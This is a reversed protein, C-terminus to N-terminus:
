IKSCVVFKGCDNEVTSRSGFVSNFFFNFKPSGLFLFYFFFLFTLFLFFQFSREKRGNTTKQSRVRFTFELNREKQKSTTQQHHRQNNNTNPITDNRNMERLHSTETYANSSCCSQFHINEKM